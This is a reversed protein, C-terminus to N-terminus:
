VGFCAAYWLFSFQIGAIANGTESYVEISNAGPALTLWESIDALYGLMNVVNSSDSSDPYCIAFKNDSWMSSKDISSILLQADADYSYSNIHLVDGTTTNEIYLGDEFASKFTITLRTGITTDGLNTLTFSGSSDEYSTGYNHGGSFYSLGVARQLFWYSDPCVVSVQVSERNSFIDPEVSEVYGSTVLRRVYNSVYVNTVVSITVLGKVPFYQYVKLRCEEITLDDTEVLRLAFVINRTRQYAGTYMSGDLGAISETNVTATVPGLGSVNTIVIGTDPMTEDFPLTLTESSPNTIAISQIM